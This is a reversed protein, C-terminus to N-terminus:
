HRKGSGPLGGRVVRIQRREARRKADEDRKRKEAAKKRAKEVDGTFRLVADGRTLRDKKKNSETM